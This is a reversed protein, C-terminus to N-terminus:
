LREHDIWRRRLSFCAAVADLWAEVEDRASPQRTTGGNGSAATTTNIAAPRDGAGAGLLILGAGLADTSGPVLVPQRQCQRQRLSM